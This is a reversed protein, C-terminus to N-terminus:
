TPDVFHSLLKRMLLQGEQEYMTDPATRSLVVPRCISAMVEVHCMGGKNSPLRSISFEVKPVYM